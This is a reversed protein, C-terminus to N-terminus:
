DVVAVADVEFLFEPRALAAVGILTSAAPPNDGFFGKRVDRLAALKSVDYDVAYMGTRVVDAATAGAAALARRLNEFAQAVQAGFDDRGVIAGDEDLAVQGAVHITTGGRNAVVHSYGIPAAIDEPNITKKSM